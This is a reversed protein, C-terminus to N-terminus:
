DGRRAPIPSRIHVSTFGESSLTALDARIRAHQTAIVAAPVPSERTANRRQCEDLPTDLVIAVPYAQHRTAIALLEARHEAQANTADVVTGASHRCRREVRAHLVEFAKSTVAQNAADGCLQARIADSSVVWSPPWRRALTSKGSGAAGILVVVLPSRYPTM